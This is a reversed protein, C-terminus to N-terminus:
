DAPTKNPIRIGHIVIAHSAASLVAAPVTESSSPWRPARALHTLDDLPEIRINSSVKLPESLSFRTCCLPVVVEIPLEEALIAMERESYIARLKSEDDSANLADARDMVSLAIIASMAVMHNQRQEQTEFVAEQSGFSPILRDALS